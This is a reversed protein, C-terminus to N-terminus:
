DVAYPGKLKLYSIVLSPGGTVVEPPIETLPCNEISMISLKSCLALEFPLTQLNPNDNMYLHQLSELNGTMSVFQYVIFCHSSFLHILQGIEEPLSSLDNEAISM